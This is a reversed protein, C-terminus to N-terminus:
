DLFDIGNTPFFYQKNNYFDDASTGNQTEPLSLLGASSIWNLETDFSSPMFSVHEVYIM